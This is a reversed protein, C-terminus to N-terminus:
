VEHEWSQRKFWGRGYDHYLNNEKVKVRAKVWNDADISQLLTESEKLERAPSLVVRSDKTEIVSFKM